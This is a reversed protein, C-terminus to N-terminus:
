WRDVTSLIAATTPGVRGLGAFASRGVTCIVAICVVWGWGALAVEGPRLEGLAAGVDM